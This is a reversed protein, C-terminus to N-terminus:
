KIGLLRSWIDNEVIGDAALKERKQYAQVAQKTAAGYFNDAGYPALSYGEGILLRQLATM